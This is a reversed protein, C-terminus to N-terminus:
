KKSNIVEQSETSGTQTSGSNKSKRLMAQMGNM